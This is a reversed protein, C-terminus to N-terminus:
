SLDVNGFYRFDRKGMVDYFLDLQKKTKDGSVDDKRDRVDECDGDLYYVLEEGRM